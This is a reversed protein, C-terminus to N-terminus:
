CSTLLRLRIVGTLVPTGPATIGGGHSGTVICAGASYLRVAFHNRQFDITVRVFEFNVRCRRQKPDNAFLRRKGARLETAAYRLTPGACNMQVSIWNAGAYCRYLSGHPLFYRCDLSDPACGTFQM